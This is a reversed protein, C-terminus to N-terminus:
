SYSARPWLRIADPPVKIAVRTGVSVHPPGRECRIEAIGVTVVYEERGGMYVVSAVTGSWEGGQGVTIEVDASRVALVVDDGVHLNNSGSRVPLSVEGGDLMRIRVRADATQLISGPLRNVQGLFDMVFESRPSEYVERPSGEQEVHGAHMVLVRDSLMMAETQDHTVFVSTVGIRRQVDRLQLRM